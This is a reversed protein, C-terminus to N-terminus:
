RVLLSLRANMVVLSSLSEFGPSPPDLAGCIFFIMNLALISPFNRPKKKLEYIYKKKDFRAFIHVKM